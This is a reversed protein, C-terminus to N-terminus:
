KIDSITSTDVKMSSIESILKERISSAFNRKINKEYADQEFTNTQKTINMAENLKIKQVEGNFNITFISNASLEYDTIIGSSNKSIAVKEFKSLITIDFKFVSDKNSYLNIENKILNNMERDGQMETIVIQFDQNGLNKYVSTYGCNYIFFLFTILIINKM